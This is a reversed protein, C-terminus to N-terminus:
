SNTPAGATSVLWRPWGAPLPPRLAGRTSLIDPTASSIPAYSRARALPDLERHDCYRQCLALDCRYAAVTAASSYGALYSEVAAPFTVTPM